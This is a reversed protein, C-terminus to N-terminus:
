VTITAHTFPLEVPVPVTLNVHTVLRWQRHRVNATYMKEKKRLYGRWRRSRNTDRTKKRSVHGPPGWSSLGVQNTLPHRLTGGGILYCKGWPYEHSKWTRKIHRMLRRWIQMCIVEYGLFINKRSLFIVCLKKKLLVFARLCSTLCSSQHWTALYSVLTEAQAKWVLVSESGRSNYTMHRGDRNVRRRLM